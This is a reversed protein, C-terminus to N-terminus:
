FKDVNLMKHLYILLILQMTNKINVIITQNKVIFFLDLIEDKFRLM